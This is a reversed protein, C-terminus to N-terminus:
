AAHPAFAVRYAQPVTVKASTATDITVHVTRAAGVQVGHQNFIRYDMQLSTNGIAQVRVEIRLRDGVQVPAKYDAEVHVIVLMERVLERRPPLPLGVHELFAQFADHCFKFQNAFFIIGYADTHHLQVTLAHSFM